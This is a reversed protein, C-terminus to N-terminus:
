LKCFKTKAKPTSNSLPFRRLVRSTIQTTEDINFQITYQHQKNPMHLSLSQILTDKEAIASFSEYALM